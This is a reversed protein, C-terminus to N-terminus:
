ANQGYVIQGAKQFIDDATANQTQKLYRIMELGKEEETLALMVSYVEAKDLKKEVLLNLLEKQWANLEM